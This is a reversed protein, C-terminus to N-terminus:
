TLRWGFGSACSGADYLGTITVPLRWHPALSSTRAELPNRSSMIIIMIIIIIIMMIIILIIKIIM